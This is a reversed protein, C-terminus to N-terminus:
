RPDAVRGLFLVTESQRDRILFVFPHDACFLPLPPVSMGRAAVVVATAAAAETGQENVKIFASHFAKAVYLGERPDAPRAMGTFNAEHDSFADVMGMEMLLSKLDFKVDRFEWQPLVVRVERQRLEALWRGVGEQTLRCELEGLGDSRRPLLIVMSLSGGRYPLELVQLEEAEGYGLVATQRMLPVEVSEGSAALFPGPVTRSADFPYLWKGLFYVASVLILRTLPTVSDEPLLDQIRDQTQSQVWANIRERERDPGGAFEVPVLEASYADATLTLFPQEFGYGAQGFLRNVVKLDIEESMQTKWGRLLKRAVEHSGNDFGFVAEMQTATRERAGGYTMAFALWISVPSYVLNGEQGRLREYLDFAFDSSSRGNTLDGDIQGSKKHFRTLFGM